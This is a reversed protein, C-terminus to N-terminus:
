AEPRETKAVQGSQKGTKAELYAGTGFYFAIVVGVVSSFSVILSQALPDTNEAKPMRMFVGFGVLALYMTTIASTIALRLVRDDLLVDSANSTAFLLLGFFTLIGAAVIAFIPPYVSSFWAGASMGAGVLFLESAFVRVLATRRDVTVYYSRVVFWAVSGALILLFAAQGWLVPNSLGSAYRVMSEQTTGQVTASQGTASQILMAVDQM